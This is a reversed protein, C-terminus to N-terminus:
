FVWGVSVCFTTNYATRDNIFINNFGHSYSASFDLGFSTTYGVGGIIGLDFGNINETYTYSDYYYTDRSIYSSNVLSSAQPGIFLRFGNFIRFKALFQFSVYDLHCDYRYYGDLMNYSGQESYYTGFEVGFGKFDYGIFAGSQFGSRTEGASGTFDSITVGCRAGFNFGDGNQAFSTVSTLLTLLFLFIFKKM